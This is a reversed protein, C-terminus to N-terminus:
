RIDMRGGPAQAAQAAHPAEAEATQQAAEAVKGRDVARGKPLNYAQAVHELTKTTLSMSLRCVLTRSKKKMLLLQRTRRLLIARRVLPQGPHAARWRCRGLSEWHRSPKRGAGESRFKNRTRCRPSRGYLMSHARGGLRVSQLLDAGGASRKSADLEEVSWPPPFRRASANVSIWIMGAILLACALVASTFDLYHGPSDPLGWGMGPLMHLEEAVHTLVVIALCVFGLLLLSRGVTM